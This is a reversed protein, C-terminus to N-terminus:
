RSRARCLSAGWGADVGCRLVFGLLGIVSGAVLRHATARSVPLLGVVRDTLSPRRAPARRKTVPKRAVGPKQAADRSRAGAPRRTVRTSMVAPGAARRRRDTRGSRSLRNRRRGGARAVAVLADHRAPHEGGAPVVRGRRARRGLSLRRAFLGPLRATSSRGPRNGRVQGRHRRAPRRSLRSGDPRRHIQADYDYFGSTPKLETVGLARAGTGDDLVATTLERGRVFPEALLHTFERWPGASGRAIPNGHNGGDAVIAVGVSSGENVPKLVYPRPLPDGRFLSESDVVVGAPMPIGHPVLVAKTLQKDIAVASTACGSHTYALGLVDLCGQVSGDEGPVGHMANFVVDPALERLRLALDADYDVATARHGRTELAAVVHRGSTLSVEREAGPGGMLVAIHLPTMGGEGVRRIEWELRVGTRALVRERVREGLAELEDGTATGTNLLFNCHKDSVMAGGLSLGRCGARDILEWAKEGPPNTFTSGGTRSRLPQSAEREAAIRDMEAGIAVPDGLQGRFRASLVIAERPLDAHRYRFGFREAPWDAVTGCREMVRASVLVDSVDRGYAGANMAVAGGVTGPIGRLFELGAVGADRAASAVGIGMAAAGATVTTEDM